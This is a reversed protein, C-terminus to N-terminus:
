HRDGRQRALQELEHEALHLGAVRAMQREYRLLDNWSPLPSTTRSTPKTELPIPPRTNM